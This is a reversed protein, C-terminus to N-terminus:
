PIQTPDKFRDTDNPLIVNKGDISGLFALLNTREAASLTNQIPQGNELRHVALV